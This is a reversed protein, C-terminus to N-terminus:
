FSCAKVCQKIVVIIGQYNFKDDHDNNDTLYLNYVFFMISPNM